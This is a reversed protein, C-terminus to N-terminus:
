EHRLAVMPDIRSARWAPVYGAIVIAALLIAVGAALTMPDNPKLAYLFSEVFRSAGMATALGITLGVAALTSVERLVM